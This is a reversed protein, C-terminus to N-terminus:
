LMFVQPKYGTARLLGSIVTNRNVTPCFKDTTVQNELDHQDNETECSHGVVQDGSSWLLLRMATTIQSGRVEPGGSRMSFHLDSRWCDGWRESVDRRRRRWYINASASRESDLKLSRPVDALLFESKRITRLVDCDPASGPPM